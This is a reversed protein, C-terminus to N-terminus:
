LLMQAQTRYLLRPQDGYNGLSRHLMTLNDWILLDGKKWKHIYINNEKLIHAHIKKMLSRSQDDTQNKITIVEIPGSAYLSKKHSENHTAIIDHEAAKTTDKVYFNPIRKPDVIIKKGELLKRLDTNLTLYAKQCNAFATEGGVQPIIEGYM